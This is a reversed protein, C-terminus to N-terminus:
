QTRLVCGKKKKYMLIFAYICTSVYTNIHLFYYCIVISAYLPLSVYIIRLYISSRILQTPRPNIFQYPTSRTAILEIPLVYDYQDIPASVEGNTSYQLNVVLARCNTLSLTILM